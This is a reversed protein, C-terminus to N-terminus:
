SDALAMMRMMFFPEPVGSPQALTFGMVESWYGRGALRGSLGTVSLFLILRTNPM